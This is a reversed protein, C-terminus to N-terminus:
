PRDKTKQQLEHIKYKEEEGCKQLLRNIEKKLDIMKLERGVMMKNYKSLAETKELLEEVAKKRETIDSFTCAFQNPAPRFATVEFHKKLDSSYNEFSIPKGTLAVGGYTEIWHRETGPLVELVTRGLIDGAKLNTMREFAPNVALFRYDAPKGEFDRVIEHLAFGDLMETFLMRYNREARRHATIDRSISLASEVKGAASREPILRWNLISPGNKGDFAFETEFPTNSEFVRSIADEWFECNEEPFGLERHTKGIFQQAMLNVVDSVNESVFLHRGKRDFRMIVDPLGTVLTRYITESHSLAELARSNKLAIAAMQAFAEAMRIDDEDFDDPKNALGLLGVTKGGFKLPAFLVNRLEVHGPPMFDAWGSKNFNNDFVATGTRYAEGRLGRIPMPLGPDVSCPLGGSELFLVENDTGNENLLAVYGSQAGIMERAKDFISRATMPFDRGELVTRSAELLNQLEKNRRNLDKLAQERTLEAIKRDTIDQFVGKLKLVKGESIEPTCITRTWLKKGKASIFRLEMDYGEGSKLARKISESLKEREEPHFYKIAEELPPKIDTSLEHIRYTEETWAIKKTEADLEWGGVKAMKATANLLEESKVLAAQSERLKQDLSHRHLAMEVTAALEREPVPKILYGYPAAIKAKELLPDHSFGTLFVVPVDSSHLIAEAAEIGKMQGALEIDMLVLDPKLEANLAVAKEGTAVPGATTYGLRSIMDMLHAALIGDDEVILITAKTM